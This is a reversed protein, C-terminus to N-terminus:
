REKELKDLLKDLAQSYKKWELNVGAVRGKRWKCGFFIWSWFRFWANPVKGVEPTWVIQSNGFVECTWDSYKPTSLIEGIM